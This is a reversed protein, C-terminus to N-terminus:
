NLSNNPGTDNNGADVTSRIQYRHRKGKDFIHFNGGFTLGPTPTKASVHMDVLLTTRIGTSVGTPMDFVAETITVDDDNDSSSTITPHQFGPYSQIMCYTLPSHLRKISFPIVSQVVTTLYTLAHNFSHRSVM